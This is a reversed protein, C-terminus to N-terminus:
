VKDLINQNSSGLRMLREPTLMLTSRHTKSFPSGLPRPEKSGSLASAAISEADIKLSATGANLEQESELTALSKKSGDVKVKYAFKSRTKKTIVQKNDDILKLDGYISDSNNSDRREQTSSYPRRATSQVSLNDSVSIGGINLGWLNENAAKSKSLGASGVSGYINTSFSKKLVSIGM